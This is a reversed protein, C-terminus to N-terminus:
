FCFSVEAIIDQYQRHHKYARTGALIDAEYGSTLRAEIYKWCAKQLDRLEFQHAGCLLGTATVDNITATGSQIFQVLMRFVEPDYKRVPIIVPGGSKSLRSEPNNLNNFILQYM